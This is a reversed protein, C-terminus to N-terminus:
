ELLHAPSFAVILARALIKTPDIFLMGRIEAENFALPIETCGLIIAQAGQSELYDIGHNLQQKAKTSIPASHAKIGYTQDYIAPHIHNKQIAETVQIVQLGHKTLHDGYINAQFTGTTSLVGITTLSPYHTKIYLAVENIMHLLTVDKPIRQVIENFIPDAHATNCPIGVVTAGCQQLHEIVEAIFLAPNLPTKGLLFETRDEIQHPVSLMSVPLHDQDVSAKTQDFIKKIVDLGAYPGVGGVVGITKM